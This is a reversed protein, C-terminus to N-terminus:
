FGRCNIKAQQQKVMFTMRSMGVDMSHKDKCTIRTFPAETNHKCGGKLRTFPITTPTSRVQNRPTTSRRPNRTQCPEGDPSIADSVFYSRTENFTSNWYNVKLLQSQTVLPQQSDFNRTHYSSRGSAKCLIIGLPFTLFYMYHHIAIHIIIFM